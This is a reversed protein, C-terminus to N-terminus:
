GAKRVNVAQNKGSRSDNAVDFSVRDEEAPEPTGPPFARVHVFIDAGGGDPKIFGFGRDGFWKKIVGTQM